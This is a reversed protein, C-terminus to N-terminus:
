RHREHAEAATIVEVALQSKITACVEKRYGREQAVLLKAKSAAATRLFKYDDAHFRHKNKLIQRISNWRKNDWDYKAIRDSKALAIMMQSALCGSDKRLHKDYESKIQGKSDIALVICGGDKVCHLLEAAMAFVVTSKGSGSLLVQTDITLEPM